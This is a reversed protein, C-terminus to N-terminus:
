RYSKQNKAPRPFPLFESPHPFFLIYHKSELPGGAINREGSEDFSCPKM